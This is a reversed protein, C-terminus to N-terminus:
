RQDGDSGRLAEYGGLLDEPSPLLPDLGTDARYRDPALGDLLNHVTNLHVRCWACPSGNSNHPALLVNPFARLPSSVPLPEIEFVDLAAGAIRGLRLADVLTPEDILRGRATNILYAHPRMRELADADIIHYSTPNLDCHLSVVDSSALLSGLDMMELGTAAIVDAPPLIPDTGLIRGGCAALRRAVARGIHGVGILGVTCEGLSRLLRKPWAGARMDATMEFPQRLFALIYGLTSDAVPETFADPTNRVSIGRAACAALDISDVGTGWKSIVRLRPARDLVAATFEDDGCIAGDLDRVLDFLEAEALRERVPPVVPTIGYRAFVRGFHAAVPQFYPASVLVRYTM